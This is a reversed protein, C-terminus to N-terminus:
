HERVRIDLGYMLSSACATRSILDKEVKIENYRGYDGDQM